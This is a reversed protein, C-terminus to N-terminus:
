DEKTEVKINGHKGGRRSMFLYGSNVLMEFVREIEECYNSQCVPEFCVDLGKENFLRAVLGKRVKEIKLPDKDLTAFIEHKLCKNPKDKFHVM